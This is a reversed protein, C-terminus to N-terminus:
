QSGSNKTEAASVSKHYTDGFVFFAFLAGLIPLLGFFDVRAESVLGIVCFPALVVASIRTVFGTALCTGAILLMVAVVAPWFGAAAPVSWWQFATLVFTLGVIIRMIFYSIKRQGPTSTIPKGLFWDLSFRGRSFFFLFGAIGGLHVLPLADWGGTLIATILLAFLGAAGAGTYLGLGLLIGILAELLRLILGFLGYASLPPVASSLLHGSAAAALVSLGVTVSVVPSVADRVPKIKKEWRSYFQSREFRRDVFFAPVALVVFLGAAIIAEPVLFPRLFESYTM